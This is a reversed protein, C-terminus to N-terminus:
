ARWRCTFIGHRGHQRRLLAFAYPMSNRCATPRVCGMPLTIYLHTCCFPFAAPLCAPSHEPMLLCTRNGCASAFHLFCCLFLYLFPLAHLPLSTGPPPILYTTSPFRPLFPQPFQPVRFSCTPYPLLFPTTSPLTPIVYTPHPLVGLTDMYVPVPSHHTPLTPHLAHTICRCSHLLCGTGDLPTHTHTYDLLTPVLTPIYPLFIHPLLYTVPSHRTHPVYPLLLIPLHVWTTHHPPLHYPTHVTFPIYVLHHQLIHTILFSSPMHTYYYLFTYYPSSYTHIPLHLGVLTFRVLYIACPQQQGTFTKNQGTLLNTWICTSTAFICHFICSPM